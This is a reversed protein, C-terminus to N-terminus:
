PITFYYVKDAAMTTGAGTGIGRVGDNGSVITLKYNGSILDSNDPDLTLETEAANWNTYTLSPLTTNDSTRVFVLTSAIFSSTNAKRNAVMVFTDSASVTTPSSQNTSLTSGNVQAVVDFAPQTATTCDIYSSNLSFRQFCSDSDNFDEDSFTVTFEPTGSCDWVESGSFDAISVTSVAVPTKGQIATYNSNSELCAVPLLSTGDWCQTQSDGNLIATGAGSGLAYERPDFPTTSPDTEDAQSYIRSVNGGDGHSDFSDLLMNSTRQTMSGSGYFAGSDNTGSYDYAITKATYQTPDSTDITGTLDLASRQPQAARLTKSTVTLGSGDITYLTYTQQVNASCAFMEYSTITDTSSSRVFKVKFKDAIGSQSTSTAYVHYQGDYLDVGADTATTTNDQLICLSQDPITAADLLLRWSNVTECFVISDGEEFSNGSVGVTKSLPAFSKIPASIDSSGVIVIGSAFPLGSVEGLAPIEIAVPASAGGSPAASGGAGCAVFGIAAGAALAVCWCM